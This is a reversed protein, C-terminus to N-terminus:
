PNGPLGRREELPSVDARQSNEILQIARLDVVNDVTMVQAKIKEFGAIQHARFRREGTVIIFNDGEKRVTIPQLLGNEKISLALDELDKIPFTKRPQDEDVKIKSLEISRIVNNIM